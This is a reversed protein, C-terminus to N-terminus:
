AVAETFAADAGQDLASRRSLERIAPILVNRTVEMSMRAGEHAAIIAQARAIAAGRVLIPWAIRWIAPAIVFAVQQGARMALGPLVKMLRMALYTLFPMMLTFLLSMVPTVAVAGIGLAAATILVMKSIRSPLSASYSLDSTASPYRARQM